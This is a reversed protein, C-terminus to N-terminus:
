VSEKKKNKKSNSILRLAQLLIKGGDAMGYDETNIIEIPKNHVDCVKKLDEFKHKMQPGVLVCDYKEVYEKLDGAPRADIIVERGKLKESKEAITRMKAVMIGTSAGLNCVLLISMKNAM